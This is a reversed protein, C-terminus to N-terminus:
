MLNVISFASGWADSFTSDSADAGGSLGVTSGGVGYCSRGLGNSSM